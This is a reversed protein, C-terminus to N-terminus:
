RRALGYVAAAFMGVVILLIWWLEMLGLSVCIGIGILPFIMYVIPPVDVMFKSAFVMPLITFLGIILLAFYVVFEEGILDIVEDDDPPVYHEGSGVTIYGATALTIKTGDPKELVLTLEFVGSQTPSYGFNFEPDDGVNEIIKNGFKVYVYSNAHVHYGMVGFTDGIVIGTSEYSAIYNGTTSEVSHPCESNDAVFIYQNTVNNYQELTIIYTGSDDIVYSVYGSSDPEIIWTKGTFEVKLRASYVLYDYGYYIRFSEGISSPNPKTYVYNDKYCDVVFLATKLVVGDVTLNIHYVGQETPIYGFHGSKLYVIYNDVEIGASSINIYKITGLMATDNLFWTIDYTENTCGSEPVVFLDNEYENPDPATIRDICLRMQLDYEYAFPTSFYDFILYESDWHNYSNAYTIDYVGVFRWGDYNLDNQTAYISLDPNDPTMAFHFMFYLEENVFSKNCDVWSMVYKDTESLQVLEDYDGLSYTNIKLYVNGYDSNIIQEAMVSDIAIDVRDLIGTEAITHRTGFFTSHQDNDFWQITGGVTNYTGITDCSLCCAPILGTEGEEGPVYWNLTGSDFYTLNDNLDLYMGSFGDYLQCFSPVNQHLLMPFDKAYSGTTQITIAGWVGDIYQRSLIQDTSTEWTRGQWFVNLDGNSNASITPYKQTYANDYLKLTSAWSSGTWKTYYINGNERTSVVNLTNGNAAVSPFEDYASANICASWIGTDSNLYMHTLNFGPGDYMVHIYDNDTVALVCGHMSLATNVSVIASWSDMAKTYKIYRLVDTGGVDDDIWIIYINDNSDLAISLGDDDLIDIGSAITKSNIWTDTSWDYSKYILYFYDKGSAGSGTYELYAVHLVDNSDVAIVAMDIRGDNDIFHKPMWTVGSDFSVNFLLLNNSDVWIACLTGNSLVTIQRGKDSDKDFYTDGEYIISADIMPMILIIALLMVLFYKGFKMIGGKFEVKLKAFIFSLTSLLSM